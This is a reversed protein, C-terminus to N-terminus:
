EDKTGKLGREPKFRAELEDIESLVDTPNDYTIALNMLSKKFKPSKVMGKTPYFERLPCKDDTCSEYPDIFYGLCDGCKLHIAKLLM